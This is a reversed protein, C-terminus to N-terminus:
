MHCPHPYSEGVLPVVGLGAFGIISKPKSHVGGLVPREDDRNGTVTQIPDIQSIIEM